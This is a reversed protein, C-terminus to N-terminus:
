CALPPPARYATEDMLARKRREIAELVERLAPTRECLKDLTM